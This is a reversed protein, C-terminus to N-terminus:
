ILYSCKVFMIFKMFYLGKQLQEPEVLTQEKTKTKNRRTVEVKEEALDESKDSSLNVRFFNM